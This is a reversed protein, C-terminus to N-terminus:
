FLPFVHVERFVWHPKSAFGSMAQNASFFHLAAFFLAVDICRFGTVAVGLKAICLSLLAYRRLLPARCPETNRRRLLAVRRAVRRCHM